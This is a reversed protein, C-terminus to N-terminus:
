ARPRRGLPQHAARRAGDSDRSSRRADAALGRVASRDGRLPRGDVETLAVQAGAAKAARSTTGRSRSRCSTTTSATCATSRSTSRSRSCRTSGARRVPRAPSRPLGRGRRWRAGRRVGGVPRARGAQSVVGTLDVRTRWQDFRGRSAAWTALHGGASHGVAICATSRSVDLDALPTSRPPSTTSRRAPRRRRQGRPPVRHEVGGLRARGPEGRAAPGLSLDYAAKWFGGHIVCSRRGEAHGDPLTLEGFQSPDEGYAIRKGPSRAGSSM